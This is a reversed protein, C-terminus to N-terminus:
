IDRVYPQFSVNDAVYDFDFPIDFSCDLLGPLSPGRNASRPIVFASPVSSKEHRGLILFLYIFFLLTTLSCAMLIDLVKVGDLFIKDDLVKAGNLINENDLVKVCDLFIKGKEDKFDQMFSQVSHIFFYLRHQVSCRSWWYTQKVKTVSSLLTM